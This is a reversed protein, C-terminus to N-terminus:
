EPIRGIRDSLAAAGLGREALVRSLHSAEVENSYAGTYVRYRTSGDSYDVALVYAPIGLESLTSVRRDAADNDAMEGVQFAWPTERIVWTSPDLGAAQAVAGSLRSADAFDLAPGALVRHFVRGNVEVPVSAFVVGPIQRSLAAVRRNAVAVEQHAEMAVSYGMLPSSESPAVSAAASAPEPTPEPTVEASDAVDESPTDEGGFGPLLGMWFALVVALFALVAVAIVINRRDPGHSKRLLPSDKPAPDKRDPKRKAKAKPAEPVRTEVKLPEPLSGGIEDGWDDDELPVAVEVLPTGVPETVDSEPPDAEPATVDATAVAPRDMPAGRGVIARLKPAWSGLLGQIEEDPAALIVVDTAAGLVASSGPKDMPLLAILSVGAEQFGGCLQYWRPSRLASGGKPVATGATIVYFGGEPLPRAVHQVSAGWLLADTLGEENKLGFADHLTPSEFGADAFVVRLGRAVWGRVLGVAVETGWGGDDAGKAVLLAVVRGAAREPEPLVPPSGDDFPTWTPTHHTMDDGAPYALAVRRLVETQAVALRLRFLDPDRRRVRRFNSLSASRPLCKAGAFLGEHM